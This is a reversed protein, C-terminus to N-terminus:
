SLFPLLLLLPEGVPASWCSSASDTTFVLGNADNTGDSDRTRGRWVLLASPRIRTFSDVARGILILTGAPSAWMKDGPLIRPRVIRGALAKASAAAAADDMPADAVWWRPPFFSFRLIGDVATPTDRFCSSTTDTSASENFSRCFLTRFGTCTMRYKEKDSDM